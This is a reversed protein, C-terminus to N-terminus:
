KELMANFLPILDEVTRFAGQTQGEEEAEGNGLGGGAGGERQGEGDRSSSLVASEQLRVACEELSWELPRFDESSVRETQVRIERRVRKLLDGVALLAGLVDASRIVGRGRGQVGELTSESGTAIRSYHFDARRALLDLASTGARPQQHASQTAANPDAPLVLDWKRAFDKFRARIAATCAEIKSVFEAFMLASRDPFDHLIAAMPSSSFPLPVPRADIGVVDGKKTSTQILSSTDFFLHLKRSTLCLLQMQQSAFAQCDSWEEALDKAVKFDEETLRDTLAKSKPPM